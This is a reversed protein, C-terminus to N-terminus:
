LATNIEATCCLSDAIYIYVYGRKKPNGEWKPWWLASFLTGQAIWTRMLKWKIYLMVLTYTDIMWGWNRRSRGDENIHFRSFHYLHVYKCLLFLSVSTCFLRIFAIKGKSARNNQVFWGFEKHSPYSMQMTTLSTVGECAQLSPWDSLWIQSKAVGHVTCVQSGQGDDVGPAQEFEHGDPWHHGGSWRMRQRRKRGEIKGLM